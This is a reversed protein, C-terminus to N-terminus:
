FDICIWWFQHIPVGLLTHERQNPRIDRSLYSCVCKLTGMWIIHAVCIQHLAIRWEEDKLLTACPQHDRFSSSQFYFYERQYSQPGCHPWLKKSTANLDPCNPLYRVLTVVACCMIKDNQLYKFWHCGNENTEMMSEYALANALLFGFPRM